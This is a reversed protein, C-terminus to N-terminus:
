RTRDVFARTRGTFWVALALLEAWTTNPTIEAYRYVFNPAYGLWVKTGRYTELAHRLHNPPTFDFFPEYLARVLEERRPRDKPDRPGTVIALRFQEGQVQWGFRRGAPGVIFWENLGSGNSLGSGVEGIEGHADAIARTALEAFRGARVKEVLSLLRAESLADREAPSLKVAEHLTGAPDYLRAVEDLRGVMEAYSSMLVAEDGSLRDATERLAPLLDRYTASRWPGPLTFTPPTLTLLVYQTACSTTALYRSVDNWYRLLQDATPIAGIKNELALTEQGPGASFM